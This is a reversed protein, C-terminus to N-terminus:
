MNDIVDLLSQKSPQTELLRRFDENRFLRALESLAKIHSQSNASLLIFMAHVRRSDPAGMGVPTEPFCVYIRQDDPNGILPRRPHPIAIGNGVATSLVKERELLETLIDEGNAAPPFDTLSSLSKFIEEATLGKVNNFVDGREILSRVSVEADM